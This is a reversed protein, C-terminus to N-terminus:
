ELIMKLYDISKKQERELIENVHVFDTEKKYDDKINDILRDKLEFLDLINELRSNVTWPPPLLDVFFNKNFNISFCLGHFSNTIVYKAKLFYGVWEEPTCIIYKAKIFHRPFNGLIILKYGTKISLKQAFTLIKKNQDILYLLIYKEDKPLIAIKEWDYKNILFTPDLVIPVNINLLHKIINQGQQERVSIHEFNKLLNIYFIGEKNTFKSNGFSAAYSIKKKNDTIFNLFFAEDFGTLQTNWIQDSGTIFLDYKTNLLSLNNNYIIIQGNLYNFRFKKFAKQILWFYPAVICYKIFQKLNKAKAFPSIQYSYELKKSFYNIIETENKLKTLYEKLAYAQLVAGYNNTRSFTLIAIKKM